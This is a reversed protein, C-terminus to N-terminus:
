FRMTLVPWGNQPINPAEQSGAMKFMDNNLSGSQELNPFWLVLMWRM